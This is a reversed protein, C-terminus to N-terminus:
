DLLATPGVVLDLVGELTIGIFAFALVGGALAINKLFHAQQNSQVMPDSEAWFAHMLFATPILFACLLLAALDLWVGLLLLVGGALLMVGTLPVMLSPAPAGSQRAYSVMGERATFHGIGTNFLLAVFMARGILHLWDVDMTETAALVIALCALAGIGIGIAQAEMGQGHREGHKAPNELNSDM